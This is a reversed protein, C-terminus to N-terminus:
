RHGIPVATARRTDLGLRLGPLVGDTHFGHEDDAQRRRCGDDGHGDRGQANEVVPPAVTSCRGSSLMASPRVMVRSYSREVLTPAQDPRPLPYYLLPRPPPSPTQTPTQAHTQPLSPTAAPLACPASDGERKLMECWSCVLRVLSWLASYATASVATDIVSTHLTGRTSQADCQTAKPM